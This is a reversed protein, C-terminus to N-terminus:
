QIPKAAKECAISFQHSFGYMGWTIFYVMPHADLPFFAFMSHFLILVLKEPEGCVIPKTPNERSCIECAKGM